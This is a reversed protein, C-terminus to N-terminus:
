DKTRSRGGGQSLASSATLCSGVRTIKLVWGYYDDETMSVLYWISICIIVFYLSFCFLQKLRVFSQWAGTYNTFLSPAAEIYVVFINCSLRFSRQQWGRGFSPPWLLPPVFLIAVLQEGGHAGWIPGQNEFWVGLIPYVDFEVAKWFNMRKLLRVRGKTILESLSIHTSESM